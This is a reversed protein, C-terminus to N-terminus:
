QDGHKEEVRGGELSSVRPLSVTPLPHAEYIGNLCQSLVYPSIGGLCSPLELCPAMRHPLFATPFYSSILARLNSSLDTSVARFRSIAVGSAQGIKISSLRSFFSARCRSLCVCSILIAQVGGGAENAWATMNILEGAHPSQM